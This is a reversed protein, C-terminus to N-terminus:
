HLESTHEESRAPTWATPCSGSLWDLRRTSRPVSGSRGFVRCARSRKTPPRSSPTSPPSTSGASSRAICPTFAAVGTCVTPTSLAASTSLCSTPLHRLSPRALPARARGDEHAHVRAHGGDGDRSIPLACTQVGTVLKDRIGDEAQFFFFFLILSSASVRM